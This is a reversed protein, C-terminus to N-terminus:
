IYAGLIPGEWRMRLRLYVFEHAVSQDHGAKYGIRPIPLEVIRRLCLDLASLVPDGSHSLRLCGCCYALM